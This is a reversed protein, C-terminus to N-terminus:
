GGRSFHQRVHDSGAKFTGCVLFYGEMYTILKDIDYLIKEIANAKTIDNNNLTSPLDPTTSMVTYAIKLDNVNSRIREIETTGPFDERTWDTKVTINNTYGYSNLSSSLYECWEEVRILDIYNYHGKTTRNDIDAQVRDYILADM